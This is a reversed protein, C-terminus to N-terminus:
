RPARWMLWAKPGGHPIQFEETIRFGNREYLPLNREVATELYAPAGTRDCQALVPQMLATGIGQGQFSPLVGLELLYYHEARPHRRELADLGLMVAPLRRLGTVRVGQPVLRLQEAPGLKWRGPPTWLAAGSRDLTTYVEGYPLTLRRLSLDFFRRVGDDRKADQRVIWNIVPDHAFAQALVGTLVPVDAVTAKQVTIASAVGDPGTSPTTMANVEGQGCSVRM